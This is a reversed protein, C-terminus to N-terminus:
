GTLDPLKHKEIKGLSNRPLADVIQMKRPVKYNAIKDRAWDLIAATDPAVGPKLTVFAAGVEGM